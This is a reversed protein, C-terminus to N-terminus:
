KAATAPDPPAIKCPPMAWNNGTPEVQPAGQKTRRFRADEQYVAKRIRNFVGVPRHAELSHWPNFALNECFCQEEASDFRQKPIDIRAVPVFPSDKQSWEISADEVPMDKGPVQLQVMFDYCWSDNTLAAKLAQFLFDDTRPVRPPAKKASAACPRVSYKAYQQSGLAYASASFYQTALPTPPPNKQAKGVQFFSRLNWNWPLWSYGFFPLIDRLTVTNSPWGKYGGWSLMTSFQAYAQLDRFFYVPSDMMIFDQTSADREPELLKPGAVGMVKIAFGHVDRDPDPKIQHNGNSFRIWAEYQGPERFLGYRYADTNKLVTFTAKICGPTKGHVDRRYTNDERNQFVKDNHDQTALAVSAAVLKAIEVDENPSIVEGM